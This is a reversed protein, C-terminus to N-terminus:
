RGYGKRRPAGGHRRGDPTSCPVCLCAYVSSRSCARCSRAALLSDGGLELATTGVGDLGLVAAWLQPKEGPAHATVFGSKLAPRAGEPIAACSPRSQWDRHSALHRAQCLRFAVHLRASTALIRRLEAVPPPAGKRRHLGRHAQTRACGGLRRGGRGERRRYRPPGSRNRDNSRYGRIKVPLGQPRHFLCGDPGRRGPRRDPLHERRGASRYRRTPNAEAM